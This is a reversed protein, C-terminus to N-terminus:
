GSSTDKEWGPERTMFTFLPIAIGHDPISMGQPPSVVYREIGVIEGTVVVWGGRYINIPHAEGMGDQVRM